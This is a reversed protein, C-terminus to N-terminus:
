NFIHEEAPFSGDAVEDIYARIASRIEGTQKLYNKSFRPIYGSSIGLVDHMVLIQGDTDAGAGIGIVPISLAETITKALTAPICELVLLQAGAAQLAKAEDLIRQANDADRGQVKFGGFVHVSQPTLGLHACVPIGRETLMKVSELLWHGGEVKVMNAGAQMLIAANQMTQEATSYSMFPMDAILLARNIGRRVCATHYAIDAVTVPLTDDHGQLVMGMSDGVLLVDIGESDFAGAFSADYATLATFKKGEKKFKLLTSSTVKSM